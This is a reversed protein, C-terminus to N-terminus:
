KAAAVAAAANLRGCGQKAAGINAATSCLDAAVQAPTLTPNLGLMLAVTGTVHPTSMSTGAILIQCDNPEGYYDPQGTCSPGLDSTATTSYINIIWHLYNVPCGSSGSQGECSAPDGGPAVLYIGGSGPASASSYNSYSAVGESVNTGSGELASAGVAVVGPYAAPCDLYNQGVGSSNGNGAAAVVVVGKAIANEVANYEVPDKCGPYPGDAGLSLNIVRAGANVADNIASVEDVDTSQCEASTSTSSCGGSPDNPFIRYLMLPSDYATGAFGFSNNTAEDSLGAVDTGHGDSDNIYPGSSQKATSPYTVFCGTRVVNATKLDPQTLDAGTDVIAIPAGVVPANSYASWAGDLNIIHMDWQGPVTPSEDYPAPAFGEATYYPDNATISLAHRYQARTVSRVGPTSALRAAVASETGPTVHVVQSRLGLQHFAFDRGAQLDLAHLAGSVSASQGADYTVTLIGPVYPSPASERAAPRRGITSMPASGGSMVGNGSTPCDEAADTGAVVPIATASAVPGTTQVPTSSSMPQPPIGGATSPTSGGGGCATLLMMATGALIGAFEKKM